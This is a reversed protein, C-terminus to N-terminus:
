SSTQFKLGIYGKSHLNAPANSGPIKNKLIKLNIRKNSEEKIKEYPKM